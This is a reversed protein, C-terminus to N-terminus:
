KWQVLTSAGGIALKAAFVLFLIAIIRYLFRLSKNSQFYPRFLAFLYCLGLTSLAWGLEFLAIFVWQGGPLLHGLAMAQPTCVTIWFVWAMGNVISLMFVRQSSFLPDKESIEEVRWLDWALNLLIMAGFVSLASFAIHQPDLFSFVGV